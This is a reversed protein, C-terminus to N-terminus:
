GVGVRAQRVQQALDALSLGLAEASPLIELEIERTGGRFSDSLDIVGPYLALQEKVFTAAQRLEDLDRGSLQLDIPAGASIMKSSFRLEVAGFLDGAAARWRDTLEGVDVDRAAEPAVEVSIEGIHSGGRSANIFTSPGSAQRLALPQAGVNIQVHSFVSEGRGEAAVERGVQELAAALQQLREVTVDPPTGQPM